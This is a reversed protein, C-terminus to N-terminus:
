KHFSSRCSKSNQLRLDLFVSVSRHTLKELGLGIIVQRKRKCKRKKKKKKRKKELFQTSNGQIAIEVEPFSLMVQALYLVYISM